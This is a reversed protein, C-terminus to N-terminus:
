GSSAILDKDPPNDFDKPRALKLVFRKGAKAVQIGGFLQDAVALATPALEGPLQAILTPRVDAYAKRAATLGEFALKDMVEVTEGDEAEASLTLLNKDRLNETATLSVLHDPLTALDALNRPLQDKFPAILPNLLRRHPEVMVIATVEDAPNVQRLRDILASRT